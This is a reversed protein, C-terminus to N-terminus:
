FIFKLGVQFQRSDQSTSQNGDGRSLILQAEAGSHSAAVGVARLLPRLDRPANMHPFSHACVRSGYQATQQKRNPHHATKNPQREAQCQKRDEDTYSSALALDCRSHSLKAVCQDSPFCNSCQPCGKWSSLKLKGIGSSLSFHQM